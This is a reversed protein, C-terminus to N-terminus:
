FCNAKVIDILGNMNGRVNAPCSNDAWNHLNNLTAGADQHWSPDRPPYQARCTYHANNGNPKIALHSTSRHAVDTSYLAWNVSDYLVLTGDDVLDDLCQIGANGVNILTTLAAAPVDGLEGLDAGAPALRMAPEAKGMCSQFGRLCVLEKAECESLAFAAPFLLASVALSALLLAPVSMAPQQRM